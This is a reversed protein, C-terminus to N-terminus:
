PEPLSLMSLVNKRIANKREEKGKKPEWGLAARVKEISLVSNAPLPSKVLNIKAQSGVIDSLFQYLERDSIFASPNTLNFVRGYASKDLTAMSLAQTVDDVHVASSGKGEVVDIVEEARVRDVMERSVLLDEDDSFVVDIRFATSPLGHQHFYLLCLRETTWKLIGYARGPDGGWTEPRCTTEEDVISSDPTGYVAISSSFLFHEVGVGAAAELLNLTGRLNVDFLDALPLKHRWSHGNWNIALHYVIDVDQVARGSLQRDTMGGKLPDNNLGVFELNSDKVAELPGRQVDLVKVKSGERLLRRVLSSGIFGAGGTVLVRRNRKM